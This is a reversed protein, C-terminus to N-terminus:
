PEAIQFTTKLGLTSLRPCIVFLAEFVPYNIFFTVTMMLDPELATYM